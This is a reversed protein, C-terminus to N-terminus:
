KRHKFFEIQRFRKMVKQYPGKDVLIKKKDESLLRFDYKSVPEKIKDKGPYKKWRTEKKLKYQLVM